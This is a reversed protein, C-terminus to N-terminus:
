PKEPQPGYFDSKNVWGANMKEGGMYREYFGRMNDQAYTYEDFIHGKGFMRPDEQQKLEDFLQAKLEVLTAQYEPNGALNNLCGPDKRVDFMEEAPRKGFSEKWYGSRTADHRLNLIETKTPSGDTNLYGTEPNGAPWRAPEFNRLYLMDGKVIGRIPYGWDHPRGIDHREKGFIVHDRDRNVRGEKSSFFVDTLSRGPTPQM